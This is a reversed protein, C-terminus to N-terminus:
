DTLLLALFGGFVLHEKGGVHILDAKDDGVDLLAAQQAEVRHAPHVGPHDDALPHPQFAADGAHDPCFRDVQLAGGVAVRHQLIVLEVDVDARGAALLRHLVDLQSIKGGKGGAKIGVAPASHGGLRQVVAHPAEQQKLQQVFREGVVDSHGEGGLLLDAPRRAVRGKGYRRVDRNRHLAIGGGVHRTHRGGLPDARQALPRHEVKLVFSRDHVAAQKRGGLGEALLLADGILDLGGDDAGVIRGAHHRRAAAAADHCHRHRHAVDM